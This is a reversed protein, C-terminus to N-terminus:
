WTSAGDCQLDLINCGRASASTDFIIRHWGQPMSRSRAHSTRGERIHAGPGRNSLDEM